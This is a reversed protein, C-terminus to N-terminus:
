IMGDIQGNQRPHKAQSPPKVPPIPPEKPFTPITFKKKIGMEELKKEAFKAVRETLTKQHEPFFEPNIDDPQAM